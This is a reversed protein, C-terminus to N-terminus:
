ESTTSSESSQLPQEMTRLGCAWAEEWALYASLEQSGIIRYVGIRYVPGQYLAARVYVLSVRGKRNEIYRRIKELVWSRRGSSTSLTLLEVHVDTRDILRENPVFVHPFPLSVTQVSKFSAWSVIVLWGPPDYGKEDDICSDHNSLCYPTFHTPSLFILHTISALFASGEATSMLSHWLTIKGSLTLTEVGWPPPSSELHTNM